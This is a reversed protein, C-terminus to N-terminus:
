GDLERIRDRAFATSEDELPYLSLFERYDSIAALHDGSAFDHIFARNLYSAAAQPALEIARDADALAAEINSLDAYVLGRSAYAEAM